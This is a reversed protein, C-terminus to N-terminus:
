CLVAQSLSSMYTSTWQISDAQEAHVQMNVSQFSSCPNSFFLSNCPFFM